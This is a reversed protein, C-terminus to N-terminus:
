QPQAAKSQIRIPAGPSVIAFPKSYAMLNWGGNAYYRLEYEGPRATPNPPLDLTGSAGGGTWKMSLRTQDGGGVPFVGVWDKRGPHDISAWSARIRDLSTYSDAGVFVKTSAEPFTQHPLTAISWRYSSLPMNRGEGWKEHAGTLQVFLAQGGTETPLVSTDAIVLGRSVVSAPVTVTTRDPLLVALQILSGPILPEVAVSQVYRLHLEAQPDGPRQLVVATYPTIGPLPLDQDVARAFVYDPSQPLPRNAIRAAMLASIEDAGHSNLHVTDAFKYGALHFSARVDIVPAGFRESLLRYYLESAAHYAGDQTAFGGVTDHALIMISCRDRAAMARVEAIAQLDGRSFYIETKAGEDPAAAYQSALSLVLERRFGAYKSFPETTSYSLFGRTDGFADEGYVDMHSGPRNAFRGYVGLDHLAAADRVVPLQFLRFSLSLLLPYPLAIGAPAHLVAYNPGRANLDYDDRGRQEAPFVIWLQRPKAVARALRYLIPFTSMEAAGTSLNFVRFPKGYAASLDKSLVAASVGHDSMSSGVVLADVPGRSAFEHLLSLKRDLPAIDTWTGYEPLPLGRVRLNSVGHNIGVITFLSAILVVAVGVLQGASGVRFLSKM